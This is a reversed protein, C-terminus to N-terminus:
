VERENNGITRITMRGDRVYFRVTRGSTGGVEESSIALNLGSLTAYASDINRTGINFSQTFGPATLMNAGGAMRLILNRPNAGADCFEKYLTKIGSNVYKTNQDVRGDPPEPLVAHLLGAFGKKPDFMGIGLCSGLGYAVLVDEPNNSFKLEGLGVTIYEPM